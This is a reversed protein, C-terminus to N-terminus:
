MKKRWKKRFFILFSMLIILLIIGIVIAIAIREKLTEFSDEDQIDCFRGRYNKFCNCVFGRGPIIKCTGNVCPHTDCVDICTGNFDIFNDECICSKAGYADFSCVSNLGCYCEECTGQFELFGEECICQKHGLWDISCTSNGGCNCEECKGNVELFGDKCTCRMEGLRDFHCTSNGGCICEKCIGESEAFGDPCYCIKIGHSNFTCSVNWEGCDCKRCIGEYPAYGNPCYCEKNGYSDFRCDSNRGCYCGKCEGGFEKYMKDCNCTKEGHNDLSCKGNPGCNCETCKKRSADFLKGVEKCICVARETKNDYTCAVDNDTGCFNTENCDIIETCFDGATGPLCTCFKLSGEGTCTGGNKCENDHCPVFCGTGNFLKNEENCKCSAKRAANKDFKCTADYLKCKWTLEPTCGNVISCNDGSTGLQCKCFHEQNCVGEHKCDSDDYCSEVCNEGNFVKSAQNCFCSAKSLATKDYICTADGSICKQKFSDTCGDIISCKDGSTGVECECFNEANCMGGNECDSDGHCKEVCSKGNFVKNEEICVCSFKGSANKDFKCKGDAFECRKVFDKTCGDVVFCKDGSTGPVCKCFKEETCVGEHYCDFDEYCKEVCKEGNFVKKEANCVCSFKEPVNKDFKCKGDESECKMVFEPTCGDVIACRDGSTGVPCKCFNGSMCKGEHECDCDGYCMEVCKAGNFVKNEENCVCAARRPSDKSFKCKANGSLCKQIFDATCGDVLSCRDGSTGAECICFKDETCMGDHECDADNHCIEVCKIGNFVKNQENCFCSSKEPVNENFKCKGNGSECRKVFDDTCGNVVECKDGSTGAKCACFKKGTCQGENECEDDSNCMEVCKTGNFVKDSETCVCSVKELVNKDFKCEGHGSECQRVFEEKCGDVIECKEGSTGAECSCFKDETCKGGNQCEGDSNCKEVCKIGNFVKYWKDCACFVKGPMDRNLKCKADGFECKKMFDETCGDVVSCKDGSTGVCKEGNFVKYWKSCICSVNGPSNRDIKCMAEGSECKQVLEKTCGEVIDCKDGSTGTQCKCFKEETCTGGNECETDDLCKEVCKEGNFVKYWENCTCSVKGPDNQDFECKADGSECIKKIKDTCGEMTEYKIGNTAVLTQCISKEICNGKKECEDDENCKESVVCHSGNFTKYWKNCTCSCNGPANIDFICKADSSECKNVFDRECGKITTCKDGSTGARCKCFKQETCIGGNECDVDTQCMEVCKQGNFTKYWKNCVCSVNKSNTKDYKCKADNSECQQIVEDICGDVIECKNGRTGSQCKLFNKDIYKGDNECLMNSSCKETLSFAPVLMVITLTYFCKM